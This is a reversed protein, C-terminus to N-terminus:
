ARGRGRPGRRTARTSRCLSRPPRGAARARSPRRAREARRSAVLAPRARIRGRAADRRPRSSTTPQSKTGKEYHRVPAGPAALHGGATVRPWNERPGRLATLSIGTADAAQFLVLLLCFRSPVPRQYVSEHLPALRPADGGRRGLFALPGPSEENKPGGWVSFGEPAVLAKRARPADTVDLVPGGM